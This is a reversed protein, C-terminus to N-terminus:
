FSGYKRSVGHLAANHCRAATGECVRYLGDSNFEELDM